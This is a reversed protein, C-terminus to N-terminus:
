ALARLQKRLEAREGMLSYYESWMHPLITGMEMDWIKDEVQELKKTIAEKM